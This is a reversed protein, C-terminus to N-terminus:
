KRSWLILNRISSSHFSHPLRQTQCLESINHRLYSIRNFNLESNSGISERREGNERKEVVCKQFM